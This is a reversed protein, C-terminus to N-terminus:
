WDITVAFHSERPDDSSKEVHWKSSLFVKQRTLYYPHWFNETQFWPWDMFNLSCSQYLLIPYGGQRNTPLHWKGTDYLGPFCLRYLHVIKDCLLFM